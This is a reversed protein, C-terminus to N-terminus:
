KLIKSSLLDVDNFKSIYEDLAPKKPLIINCKSIYEDFPSEKPLITVTKLVRLEEVLTLISEEEMKFSKM